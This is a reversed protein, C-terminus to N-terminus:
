RLIILRVPPISKTELQLMMFPSYFSHPHIHRSGDLLGVTVRVHFCNLKWEPVNRVGKKKEKKKEGRKHVCVCVCLCVCVIISIYLSGVGFFLRFTLPFSSSSFFFLDHRISRTPFLSFKRGDSNHTACLRGALM